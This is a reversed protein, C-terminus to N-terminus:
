EPVLDALRQLTLIAAKAPWRLWHPRPAVAFEALQAATNIAGVDEELLEVQWGKLGSPRGAVGSILGRAVAM